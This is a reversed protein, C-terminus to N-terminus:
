QMLGAQRVRKLFNSANECATIKQMSNDLSDAQLAHSAFLELIITIAEPFLDDQKTFSM